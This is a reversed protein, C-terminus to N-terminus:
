ILNPNSYSAWAWSFSVISCVNFCIVFLFAFYVCVKELVPKLDVEYEIGFKPIKVDVDADFMDNVLLNYLEDSNMKSEVTSLVVGADPLIMVFSYSSNAYKMELVTAQLERWYVYGFHAKIQMFDVLTTHNPRMYFTDKKTRNKDFKNEWNAKFYIANLLVLETDANLDDPKIIEVIKQRTANKVFDNITRASQTKEAFNLSEIGSMFKESAVKSFTPNIEHGKKVYIENVMSLVSDQGNKQLHGFLDQYQNAVVNKDINPFLHNQLQEFTTGNAAQSLLTLVSSVSM